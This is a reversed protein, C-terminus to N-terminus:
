FACTSPAGTPADLKINTGAFTQYAVSHWADHCNATAPGNTAACWDGLPLGNVPDEANWAPGKCSSGGDGQFGAPLTVGPYSVCLTSVLDASYIQELETQLSYGATVYASEGKSADCTASGTIQSCNGGGWDATTPDSGLACRQGDNAKTAQYEGICDPHAPDNVMGKKEVERIPIQVVHAPDATTGYITVWALPSFAHVYGTLPEYFFIGGYNDGPIDNIYTPSTPDFMALVTARGSPTSVDFDVTLRKSKTPGVSWPTGATGDANLLPMPPYKSALIAPWNTTPSMDQPGLRVDPLVPDITTPPIGTYQGQGLCLTPGSATVSGVYTAFGLSAYDGVTFTRATTDQMFWDDLEISGGAGYSTNIPQSCAAWPLQSRAALITYVLTGAANGKPEVANIYTQRMQVHQEATNDRTALCESGPSGNGAPTSYCSPDTPCCDTSCAGAPGAARGGSSGGTGSSSNSAGSDIPAPNTISGGGDIRSANGGGTSVCEGQGSADSVNVCLFGTPCAKEASCLFHSEGGVGDVVQGCGNAALAGAVLSLALLLGSVVTERNRRM